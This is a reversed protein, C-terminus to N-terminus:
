LLWNCLCCLFIFYVFTFFIICALSFFLYMDDVWVSGQISFTDEFSIVSKGFIDAFRCIYNAATICRSSPNYRLAISVCFISIERIQRAPVHIVATDLIYPCNM